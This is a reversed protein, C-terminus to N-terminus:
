SCQYDFISHSGVPYPAGAFIKGLAGFQDPGARAAGTAGDINVGNILLIKVMLYIGFRYREYLIDDSLALPDTRDRFVRQRRLSAQVILADPDMPVGVFPSPM